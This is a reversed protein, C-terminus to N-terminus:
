LQGMLKNSSTMIEDVRTQIEILLEPTPANGEALDILTLGDAGEVEMDEIMIENIRRKEIRKDRIARDLWIKYLGAFNFFENVKATIIVSVYADQVCDEADMWDKGVRNYAYKTLAGRIVDYSNNADVGDKFKILDGYEKFHNHAENRIIRFDGM